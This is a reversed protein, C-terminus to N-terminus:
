EKRAKRAERAAVYAIPDAFANREIEQEEKSLVENPSCESLRRRATGFHCNSLDLKALTPRSKRPAGPCTTNNTPRNPTVPSSM